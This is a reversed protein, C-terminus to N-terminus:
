SEAARVLQAVGGCQNAVSIPPEWVPRPRISLQRRLPNKYTQDLVYTEKKVIKMFTVYAYVPSDYIKM